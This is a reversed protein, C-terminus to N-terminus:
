DPWSSTSPSGATATRSTSRCTPCSADGAAPIPWTCGKPVFWCGDDKDQLAILAVTGLPAHETHPRWRVITPPGIPLPEIRQGNM